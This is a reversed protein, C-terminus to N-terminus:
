NREKGYNIGGINSKLNNEKQLDIGDGILYFTNAPKALLLADFGAKKAANILVNGTDIKKENKVEM